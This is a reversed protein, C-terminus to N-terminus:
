RLHANLGEIKRVDKIRWTKCTQEWDLKTEHKRQKLLSVQQRKSSIAQMDPGLDTACFITVNIAM